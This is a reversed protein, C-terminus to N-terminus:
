GWLANAIITGLFGGIFMGLWYMWVPTQEPIDLYSTNKCKPCEFTPQGDHSSIM